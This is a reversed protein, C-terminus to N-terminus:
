HIYEFRGSVVRIDGVGRQFASVESIVVTTESIVREVVGVHGFVPDAGAQGPQFVIVAGQQPHSDVRWGARRASVAWQKADGWWGGVPRHLQNRRTAAWWTCQSFPYSTAFRTPTASLDSLILRDGAEVQEVPHRVGARSVVPQFLVTPKDALNWTGHTTLSVPQAPFSREAGWAKSTSAPSILWQALLLTFLLLLTLMTRHRHFLSYRHSTKRHMFFVNRRLAPSSLQVRM